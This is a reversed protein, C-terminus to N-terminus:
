WVNIISTKVHVPFSRLDNVSKAVFSWRLHKIVGLYTESLSTIYQKREKKGEVKVM